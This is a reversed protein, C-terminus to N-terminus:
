VCWASVSVTRVVYVCVHLRDIYPPMDINMEKGRETYISLYVEFLLLCSVSQVWGAETTQRGSKCDM